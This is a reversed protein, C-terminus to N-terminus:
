SRFAAKVNKQGSLRIARAHYTPWPYTLFEKVFRM